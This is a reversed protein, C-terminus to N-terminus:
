EIEWSERDAEFQEDTFFPKDILEIATLGCLPCQTGIIENIEWTVKMFRAKREDAFKDTATPVRDAAQLQAFL